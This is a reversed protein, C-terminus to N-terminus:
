GIDRRRYGLFGAAVLGAAVLLLGGPLVGQPSAASVNPVHHLPSVALAWDPLRFTPGLLTVAFTVVVGVWGILRLRPAVGVAAVALGVLVWVAPVTVAAQEVVTGVAVGTPGTAILGLALGAAVLAVATGTLAVVVNSALYVEGREVELDLGDLARFSGFTKILGSTRIAPGPGGGAATSKQKAM